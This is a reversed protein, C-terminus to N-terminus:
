MRPIEFATYWIQCVGVVIDNLFTEEMEHWHFPTDLDSLPNTRFDKLWNKITRLSVVADSDAYREEDEPFEKLLQNHISTPGFNQIYLQHARLRQKESAKPRAM